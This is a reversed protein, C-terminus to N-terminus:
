TANPRSSHPKLRAVSMVCFHLWTGVVELLQQRATLKLTARRGRHFERLSEQWRTSSVGGLAFTALVDSVVMPQELQSLGLMAVYDAAIHYGEPFGNIDRLASTKAVTGQHPPFRGIFLRRKAQEYNLPPPCIRKGDAQAFEVEAVLWMPHTGLHERLMQLSESNFLRDGANLFYCYEGRAERLGANMAPFIGRPEEWQYTAPVGAAAVADKVPQSDTSGDIVIWEVGPVLAGRLSEVTEQLGALDDKVVTVITLWPAPFTM